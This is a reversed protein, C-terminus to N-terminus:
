LVAPVRQRPSRLRHTLKSTKGLFQLAAKEPYYACKLEVGIDRVCASPSPPRLLPFQPPLEDEQYSFVVWGAM